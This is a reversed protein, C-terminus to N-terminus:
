LVGYAMLAGMVVFAAASVWLLIRQPLLRCLAEGGIVGLATVGILAIAAGLFVGWLSSYQGALSLVALQTKDGLEAVFLLALTSGFARWSWSSDPGDGLRDGSNECADLIPCGDEVRIAQRAVLLGMVVFAGAAVGRIVDQPVLRGLAQGGVAGVATVLTLALSAGGFVAWRRRYTCVQTVVALQTKDGLEAVFVLVLAGLFASWNM